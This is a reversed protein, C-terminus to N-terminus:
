VGQVLFIAGESAARRDAAIAQYDSSNLWSELAQRGTFKVIVIKVPACDGEAIHPADDAALLRGGYKMLVAMFRDQYRQYRDPDTVRIHAVGYAAMSGGAAVEPSFCIATQVARDFATLARRRAAGPLPM